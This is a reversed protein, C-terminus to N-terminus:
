DKRYLSLECEAFGWGRHIAHITTEEQTAAFHAAAFIKAQEHTLTIEALRPNIGHYVGFLLNGTAAAQAVPVRDEGPGVYLTDTPRLERHREM